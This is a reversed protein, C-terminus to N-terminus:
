NVQELELKNKDLRLVCNAIEQLDFPKLFFASAGANMAKHELLEHRYGTYCIIDISPNQTKILETAKIGDMLPMKIDMIVFDPVLQHALQAAELGNRAEAIVKIEPYNLHFFEKLITRILPYDDALLVNIM